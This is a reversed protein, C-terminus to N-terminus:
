FLQGNILQRPPDGNVPIYTDGAGKNYRLGNIDWCGGPDCSAIEAPPSPVSASVPESDDSDVKVDACQMLIQRQKATYGRPGPEISGCVEQKRNRGGNDHRILVVRPGAQPSELDAPLEKEELKQNAAGEITNVPNVKISQVNNGNPCGADSYSIAGTVRNTCKVVNASVGSSLIMNAMIMFIGVGWIQSNRM